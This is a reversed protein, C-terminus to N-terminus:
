FMQMADPLLVIPDFPFLCIMLYLIFSNEYGYVTTRFFLFFFFLYECRLISRKREANCRVWSM